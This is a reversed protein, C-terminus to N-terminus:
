NHQIYWGRSLLIAKAALGESSPTANGGGNMYLQGDTVLRTGNTGDFSAFVKLFNDISAEDLNCNNVYVNPNNNGGWSKTVGPTGIICSTLGGIYTLYLSYNVVEIVNPLNITFSPISSSGNVGRLKKLSPLNITFSPLYNWGWGLFADELVPFM